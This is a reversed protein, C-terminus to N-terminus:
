PEYLSMDMDSNIYKTNKGSGVKKLSGNKVLKSVSTQVKAPNSPSYLMCLEHMSM